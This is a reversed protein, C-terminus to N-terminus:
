KLVKVVVFIVLGLLLINQTGNSKVPGDTRTDVPGSQGTNYADKIQTASNIVSITGATFANLTDMFVNGGNSESAAQATLGNYEFGTM